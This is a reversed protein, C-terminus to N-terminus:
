PRVAFGLPPKYRLRRLVNALHALFDLFLFIPDREPARLDVHDVLQSLLMMSECGHTLPTPCRAPERQFVFKDLGREPECANMRRAGREPIVHRLTEM